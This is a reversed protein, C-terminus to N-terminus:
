PPFDPYRGAVVKERAASTPLTLLLKRVFEADSINRLDALAISKHIAAESM